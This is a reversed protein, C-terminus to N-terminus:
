FLQWIYNSLLNVGIGLILTVIVVSVLLKRRSEKKEYVEIYGGWYFNYIPNFKSYLYFSVYGLTFLFFITIFTKSLFIDNFTIINENNQARSKELEIIVKVPDLLKKNYWQKEIKTITKLQAEKLNASRSYMSILVGLIFLVTIIPISFTRLVRKTDHDFLFNRKKIKAIREEILSSTVFVWDRSQGRIIYKIPKEDYYHENDLAQLKVKIENEAENNKQTSAIELSKIGSSGENDLNLVDDINDTIEVAGNSFKMNFLFKIPSDSTKKHQDAMLDVIRRLEQEKILFGHNYTKNSNVIIQEM